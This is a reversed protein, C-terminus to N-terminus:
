AWTGTVSLQMGVHLHVGNPSEFHPLAATYRKYPPLHIDVRLHGHPHPCRAQDLPGHRCQIRHLDAIIITRGRPQKVMQTDRTQSRAPFAARFQSAALMTLSAGVGKTM